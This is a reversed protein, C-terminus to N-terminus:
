RIAEICLSLRAHCLAYPAPLIELGVVQPIRVISHNFHRALSEIFGGTGCCPDIIKQACDQIKHNFQNNCIEDVFRVMWDTLVSPTYFAGWDFKAQYDFNTFFEEFLAHFNRPTDDLGQYEAHALLSTIESYIEAIRTGKGLEDKLFEQIVRFPGLKHAEAFYQDKIWYKDIFSRIEDPAINGLPAQIHAYFQGFALVQAVFNSCSRNDSLVPDHHDRVLEQLSHIAEILKNEAITSGSNEVSSMLDYFADALLRARIAIHRILNTETWSTFGPSELLKRFKTEVLINAPQTSWQQKTDIPKAILEIREPQEIRGSEFFLFEIGDFVFVPRGLKLYQEIQSVENNDLKYPALLDVSKHEGYFFVGHSVSDCLRWDPTKGISRVPAEHLLETEYNQNQISSWLKTLFKHAYPRSSLEVSQQGAAKATDYVHQFEGLYEQAIESFSM